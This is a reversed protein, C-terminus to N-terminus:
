RGVGEDASLLVFTGGRSGLGVLEVRCVGGRSCKDVTSNREGKVGQVTPKKHAFFCGEETEERRVACPIACGM